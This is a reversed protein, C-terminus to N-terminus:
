IRRSLTRPTKLKNPKNAQYEKFKQMISQKSSRNQQLFENTTLMLLAAFDCWGPTFVDNGSIGWCSCLNNIQQRTTTNTPTHSLQQECGTFVRVTAIHQWKWVTRTKGDRFLREHHHLSSYWFHVFTTSPQSKLIEEYTNKQIRIINFALKKKTFVPFHIQFRSIHFFNQHESFYKVILGSRHHYRM